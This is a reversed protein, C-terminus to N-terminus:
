WTKVCHAEDIALCAMKAKYPETLLMSRFKVNNVLNEPSIYLLQLDGKLVRKVAELDTQAEGVFEGRLGMSLFKAQQDLVISILLSICVVLSGTTGVYM